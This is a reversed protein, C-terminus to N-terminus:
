GGCPPLSISLSGGGEHPLTPTPPLLKKGGVRAKGWWPPPFPPGEGVLQPLLPIRIEWAFLIRIVMERAFYFKEWLFKELLVTSQVMQHRDNSHRVCKPM